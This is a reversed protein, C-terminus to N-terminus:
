GSEVGEFATQISVKEFLWDVSNGHQWRTVALAVTVM